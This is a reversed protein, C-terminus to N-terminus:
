AFLYLKDNPAKVIVGDLGRSKDKYSRKLMTRASNKSGAIRNVIPMGKINLSTNLLVGNFESLINYLLANDEKTVTQLRASGDVHTISELESRYEPKVMVSYAMTDMGEFDPFDFYEPADQKRCVPAFPRFWERFKVSSNIKDKMGKINAACVISRNGLARPGNEMRGQMLGLIKGEKLMAVIQSISIETEYNATHWDQPYTDKFKFDLRKNEKQILNNKFLYGAMLGLSLGEDGPNPPVYFNIDPYRERLASNTLINMATGGTLVVNNDCEKIMDMYDNDFLKFMTANLWQQSTYAADYKDYQNYELCAISHKAQIKNWFATLGHKPSGGPNNPLGWRDRTAKPHAKALFVGGYMGPGSEYWEKYYIDAKELELDQKFCSIYDNSNWIEEIVNKGFSTLAMFKGAQDLRMTEKIEPFYIRGAETYAWSMKYPESKGFTMNGDDLTYVSHSVGGEGGGDYALVFAKKFPSQLYGSYAHQEHHRYKGGIIEIDQWNIARLVEILGHDIFSSHKNQFGAIVKPLILKSFDNRIGFNIRLQRLFERLVNTLVEPDTFIFSFHKEEIIKSLEIIYYENQDPDYITVNADHHPHIAIIPKM